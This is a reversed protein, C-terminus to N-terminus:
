LVSALASRIGSGGRLSFRKEGPAARVEGVIEGRSNRVPAERLAGVGLFAAAAPLAARNAGDEVKVAIGAGDPLGVCLLGEAGRKAIAGPIAHMLATDAATPGGVLDPRARMAAVVREAGELEAAALRAFAVAMARLPLAFSVVGCGDTATPMAGAGVQAADAVVRQAEKQVPHGPLRYGPLPWAHRQSRLLMAAHKGSCNHRLRSGAQEGCELDGEGAGARELLSRVAALQEDTAEHSACAIVLEEERLDREELALPLAQFPKAASRMFTVLDPDGAAHVIEGRRVAVAHARHRSEVVGGRVVVVSLPPEM